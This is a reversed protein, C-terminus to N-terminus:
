DNTTYWKQLIELIVNEYYEALGVNKKNEYYRGYHNYRKLEHNLNESIDNHLYIVKNPLSSKNQKIFKFLLIRMRSEDVNSFVAISWLAQFVGQDSTSKPNKNRSSEQRVRTLNLFLRVSDRLSLKSNKILCLSNFFFSFHFILVYFFSSVKYLQRSVLYKNKSNNINTYENHESLYTTKGVAPLGFMENLGVYSSEFNIIKM